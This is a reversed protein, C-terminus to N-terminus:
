VEFQSKMKTSKDLETVIWSLQSVMNVIEWDGGIPLVIYESVLM